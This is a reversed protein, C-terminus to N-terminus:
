SGHNQHSLFEGQIEASLTFGRTTMARFPICSKQLGREVPM